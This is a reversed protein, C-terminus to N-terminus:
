MLKRYKEVELVRVVHFLVLSLKAANAKDYMELLADLSISNTLTQVCELLSMM